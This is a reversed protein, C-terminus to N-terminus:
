IQWVTGLNCESIPYGVTSRIYQYGCIKSLNKAAHAARLGELDSVYLCVSVKWSVRERERKREREKERDRDREREKERNRERM